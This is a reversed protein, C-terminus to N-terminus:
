NAKKPRQRTKTVPNKLAKAEGAALHIAWVETTVEHDIEVSNVVKWEKWIYIGDADIGPEGHLLYVRGSVTRVVLKEIDIYEIASSVRGEFYSENWGVCHREGKETEFIMWRVLQIHPQKTVTAVKWIPM